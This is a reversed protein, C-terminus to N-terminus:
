PSLTVDATAAMAAFTAMGVIDDVLESLDERTLELVDVVQSCVLVHLKGMDKLTQFLKWWPEVQGTEVAETMKTEFDQFHSDLALDKGVVDKRLAWVGEDLAFITVEFDAAVAGSALLAAAHWHSYGGGRVVIQMSPM